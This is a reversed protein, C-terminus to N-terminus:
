FSRRICHSLLSYSKQTEYLPFDVKGAVGIRCSAGCWVHILQYSIFHFVIFLTGMSTASQTETSHIAVINHIWSLKWKKYKGSMWHSFTHPVHFSFRSEKTRIVDFTLNTQFCLLFHQKRTTGDVAYSTHALFQSRIFHFHHFIVCHITDQTSSNIKLMESM